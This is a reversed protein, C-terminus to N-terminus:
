KSASSDAQVTVRLSNSAKPKGQSLSSFDTDDRSRQLRWPSRRVPSVAGRGRDVFGAAWVFFLLIQSHVTAWSCIYRSGARSGDQQWSGVTTHVVPFSVM